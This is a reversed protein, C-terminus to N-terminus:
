TFLRWQHCGWRATKKTTGHDLSSLSSVHIKYPMKNKHRISFHRDQIVSHGTAGVIDVCKEDHWSTDVHSFHVRVSEESCRAPSSRSAVCPHCTAPPASRPSRALKLLCCSQCDLEAKLHRPLWIEFDWVQACIKSLQQSIPRRKCIKACSKLLIWSCAIFILRKRKLCRQHLCFM